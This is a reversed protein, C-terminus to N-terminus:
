KCNVIVKVSEDNMQMFIAQEVEEISYFHTIIPTLNIKAANILSVARLHTDPNVFSGRVTLEKKFIDFLKLQYVADVKPVSFLLIMAGKKALDFASQVAPINGVCEIVVDVGDEGTFERVVDTYNEEFPNVTLDVGVEMAIERRKKSPESVIVISAGSLKALQAMILGIAGGGVICVSQGVKIKALDIGHICCAIPEAMAGFEFPIDKNLRFLQGSPVLSYEAFGGDMTVGVAQMKECLQKKGNQCYSCEGCYINPDITVHDGVVVNTVESGIAEVIGSYEHGLVIPPVVDASGPEGHYIHVDTGCVGCCMNKVLAWGPMVEPKNVEKVEFKRNGMFYCAKM